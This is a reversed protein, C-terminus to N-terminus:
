DTTEGRAWAMAEERDETVFVDVGEVEDLVSKLAIGKIDPSVLAVRGVDNERYVDRYEEALDFTDSQIAGGEGLLFVSATVVPYATIERFTEMMEEVDAPDRDYWTRFNWVVVSGEVEYSWGGVM